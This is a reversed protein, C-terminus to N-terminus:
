DAFGPFFGSQRSFRASIGPRWVVLPPLEIIERSNHFQWFKDKSGLRSSLNQSLIKTKNEVFGALTTLSSCYHM